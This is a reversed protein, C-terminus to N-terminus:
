GAAEDLTPQYDVTPRERLRELLADGSLDERTVPLGGAALLERNGSPADPDERVFLPVWGAKLNELAGARTGGSDGSAVVVAAEALSYILRNRGMADGVSFGAAPHKVAILTLEGDVLHARFDARRAARELAEAVVGIAAGGGDAAALMAASDIGRAAGSVVTLGNRACSRGLATAFATSAEDADRSGVVAVSRGGLASPNGAGFLIPPATAKLRSRLLAPYGDDARTILWIGRTSLRDIEVALQGGRSLLQALRDAAEPSVGLSDAIGRAELGFLASPTRLESAPISAALSSWETPTLPRTPAERPLALTSCLLAIAQADPRLRAITM